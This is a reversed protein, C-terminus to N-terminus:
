RNWSVTALVSPHQRYNTFAVINQIMAMSALIRPFERFVLQHNMLVVEELISSVTQSKM